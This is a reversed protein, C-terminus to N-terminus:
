PLPRGIARELDALAMQYALGTQLFQLRVERAVQLAQLLAVIGTQGSSYSDEAMAEIERSAPLILLRERDLRERLAQARAAAATVSGTTTFVLAEREARVQTVAGEERQVGALHRTFDPLTLSIATRWGWM